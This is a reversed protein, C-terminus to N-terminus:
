IPYKRIRPVDDADLEAVFVASKGFGVVRSNASFAIRDVRAGRRDFVDYVVQKSKAPMSRSVWIRGDPAAVIGDPEFAPKVSAYEPKMADGSM